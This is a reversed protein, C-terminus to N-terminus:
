LSHNRISSCGTDQDSEHQRMWDRATATEAQLVASVVGREVRVSVTVEGLHEPTLRLRAEGVDDHWALSIARVVQRAMEADGAAPTGTPVTSAAAQVPAAQAAPTSFPLGM